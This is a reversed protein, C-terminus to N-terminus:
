GKIGGVSMNKIIVNQFLTYMLVGPLATVVLAAYYTVKGSASWNSNLQYLYMGYALSPFENLSIQATQYDNWRGVFNTVVLAIILPIVQPLIIELLIQVENAGDIEASESYSKSICVFTGYLIFASYDFGNMWYFWITFPNNIMGLEYRLKYAAAGTGIIPITQIFILLAYLWNRGPFRFKALAYAIMVSAVLNVFLYVFTQWISNWLMELYYVNGYVVFEDFVKIYNIFAWTTTLSSTSIGSNFEETSKLSNNIVWLFPYAHVVVEAVFFIFFAVLFIKVAIGLQKWKNLATSLRSQKHNAKMEMSM